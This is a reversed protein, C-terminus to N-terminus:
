SHREKRSRRRRRIIIILIIKHAYNNSLKKDMKMGKIQKMNNYCEIGTRKGDEKKKKFVWKAAVGNADWKQM